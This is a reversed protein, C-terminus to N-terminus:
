KEKRLEQGQKKILQRQLEILEKTRILTFGIPIRTTDDGAGDVLWAATTDLLKALKRIDLLCPATRNKEWASIVAKGSKQMLEALEDQTLGKNVRKKKLRAGFSEM